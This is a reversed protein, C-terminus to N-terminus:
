IEKLISVGIEAGAGGSIPAGVDRGALFFFDNSCLNDVGM